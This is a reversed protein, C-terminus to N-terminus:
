LNIDLEKIRWIEVKGDPRTRIIKLPIIKSKLEAIAIDMASRSKESIILSKAADSIQKARDGFLRVREYKSLRPITIREDDPVINMSSLNYDDQVENLILSDENNESDSNDLINSTDTTVSNTITFTSNSM